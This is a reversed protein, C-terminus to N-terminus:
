KGVGEDRGWGSGEIGDKYGKVACSDSSGTAEERGSCRCNGVTDSNFISYNTHRRLLYIFLHVYDIM